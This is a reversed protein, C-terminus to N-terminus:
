RSPVDETRWPKRGTIVGLPKAVRFAGDRDIADQIAQQAETLDQGTYSESAPGCGVDLIRAGPEPSEREFLWDDWTPNTSYAAHM